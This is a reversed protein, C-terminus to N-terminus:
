HPVMLEPCLFVVEVGCAELHHRFDWWDRDSANFVNPSLGSGLAVAVFKRDDFDFGKLAPEVPFDRYGRECHTAVSIKLCHEENAQNEFLWKFFADGAGPQGSSRLNRRYEALILGNNDLLVCHDERVEALKSICTRQCLLSAQVAGGNSVVAVNTDIVVAPKAITM